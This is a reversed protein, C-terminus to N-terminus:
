LYFFEGGAQILEPLIHDISPSTYEKFNAITIEIELPRAGTVLPEAMYVEIQKVDSARHV